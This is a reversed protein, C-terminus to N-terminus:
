RHNGAHGPQPTSITAQDATPRDLPHYTRGRPHAGKVSDFAALETRLFVTLQRSEDTDKRALGPTVQCVAPTPRRRPRTPPTLTIGLKKWLDVGVLLTAELNPLVLIEHRYQNNGVSLTLRLSGLAIGSTNNALRIKPSKRLRPPGEPFIQNLATQSICSVEAGTDVLASFGQARIRM